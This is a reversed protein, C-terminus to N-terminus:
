QNKLKIGKNNKWMNYKYTYGHMHQIIYSVAVFIPPWNNLQLPSYPRFTKQIFSNRNFFIQPIYNQMGMLEDHEVDIPVANRHLALYPQSTTHTHWENPRPHMCTYSRTHTHNLNSCSLLHLGKKICFSDTLVLFLSPLFLSSILCSFFSSFPM